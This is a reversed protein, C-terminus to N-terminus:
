TGKDHDLRWGMVVKGDTNWTGHIQAGASAAAAM